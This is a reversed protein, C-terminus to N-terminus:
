VESDTAQECWNRYGGGVNTSCDMDSICAQTCHSRQRMSTKHALSGLMNMVVGGVWKENCKTYLRCPVSNGVSSASSRQCTSQSTALLFWPLAVQVPVHSDHGLCFVPRNSEHNVYIM